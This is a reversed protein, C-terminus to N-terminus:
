RKPGAVRFVFNQGSAALKADSEDWVAGQSASEQGALKLAEVIEGGVIVPPLRRPELSLIELSVQVQYGPNLLDRFFLVCCCSLQRERPHQRLAVIDHGNRPGLAAFVELLVQCGNIYSERAIGEGADILDGWHPCGCAHAIGFRGHRPNITLFLLLLVLM